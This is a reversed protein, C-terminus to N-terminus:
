AEGGSAPTDGGIAIGVEAVMNNPTLQGRILKYLILNGNRITIHDNAVIRLNLTYNSSNIITVIICVYSKIFLM